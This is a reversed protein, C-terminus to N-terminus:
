STKVDIELNNVKFCNNPCHTLFYLTTTITLMPSLSIIPWHWGIWSKIPRSHYKTGIMQSKNMHCKTISRLQCCDWAMYVKDDLFYKTLVQLFIFMKLTEAIFLPMETFLHLTTFIFFLHVGYFICWDHCYLYNKSEACCAFADNKCVM